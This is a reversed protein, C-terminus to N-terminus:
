YGAVLDQLDYGISGTYPYDFGNEVLRARVPNRFVYAVQRRWDHSRRIIHDYYDGQWVVQPFRDKLFRGSEQKFADMARKSNANDTQGCAIIHLHDPMFCYIGVQCDTVAMKDELIELLPMVIQESNLQPRRDALCVTYAIAKQGIYYHAPLRHPKRRVTSM